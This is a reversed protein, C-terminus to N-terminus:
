AFSPSQKQDGVAGISSHPWVVDRRIGPRILNENRTTKLGAGFTPLFQNLVTEKGEWTGIWPVSKDGENHWVFDDAMLESLTDMDGTGAAELFSQAIHLTQQTQDMQMEQVEPSEIETKGPTSSGILLLGALMLTATTRMM